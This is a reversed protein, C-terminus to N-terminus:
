PTIELGSQMSHRYNHAHSPLEHKGPVKYRAPCQQAVPNPPISPVRYLSHQGLGRSKISSSTPGLFSLQCLCWSESGVNGARGTTSDQETSGVTVCDPQQSQVRPEHKKGKIEENIFHLLQIFHLSNKQCRSPTLLGWLVLQSPLTSIRRTPLMAPHHVPSTNVGESGEKTM